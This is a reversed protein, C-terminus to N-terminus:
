QRRLVLFEVRRNRARAEATKTRDIPQSAGYGQPLLTEAPLGRKVLENKIVSARWDSLTLADPERDDAHGGVELVLKTGQKRLCLLFDATYDLVRVSSPAPMASGAPFHVPELVLGCEDSTTVVVRGRAEPVLPPLETLAPADVPDPADAPAADVPIPQPEARPRPPASSCATLLVWAIATRV